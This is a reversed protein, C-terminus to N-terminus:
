AGSPWIHSSGASHSLFGMGPERWRTGTSGAVHMCPCLFIIPVESHDPSAPAQGTVAAGLLGLPLLLSRPTFCPLPFLYSQEPPLKSCKLAQLQAARRSFMKICPILHKGQFGASFSSRKLSLICGKPPLKRISNRFPQPPDRVVERLMETRKTKISQM